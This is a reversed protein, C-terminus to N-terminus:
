FSKGGCTQWWAPPGVPQIESCRSNRCGSFSVSLAQTGSEKGIPFGTTCGPQPQRSFTDLLVYSNWVTQWPPLKSPLIRWQIGGKSVYFIANLISPLPWLRKRGLIEDGIGKRFMAM